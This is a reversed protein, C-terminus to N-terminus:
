FLIDLLSTIQTPCDIKRLKIEQRKIDSLTSIPWFWPFVLGGIVCCQARETYLLDRSQIKGDSDIYKNQIDGSVIAARVAGIAIFAPFYVRSMVRYLHVENYQM